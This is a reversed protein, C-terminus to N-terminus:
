KQLLVAFLTDARKRSGEIYESSITRLGLENEFYFINEENEASFVSCTIYLIFGGPKLKPLVNTIIRRQLYQYSVLSSKPFYHLQEPTRSWTGALILDFTDNPFDDASQSLDALRIDCNTIGANKLRAKLNQLITKRKDSATIASEPFTDFLQITKGGSGACCDWIKIGSRQCPLQTLLAGTLQSAYDQIVVEKDSKFLHQVPTSNPLAITRPAIPQYQWEHVNLIEVVRERQGPRIRIFLNPQILFSYLLAAKDIKQSLFESFPYNTEISFQDANVRLANKLRDIIQEYTENFSHTVVLAQGASIIEERNSTNKFGNAVRFYGYCLATIAKRDNSGHKRNKSFYEKLYLHLPISGEYSNLLAIAYRIHNKRFSNEDM